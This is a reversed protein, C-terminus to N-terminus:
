SRDEWETVGIEDLNFVLEACANHVNNRFADIAAELFVLPVKLRPYEQPISKTEFLEHTHGTIFSDIRTRTMSKGFRESYGHLLETRNVARHNAAKNALWEVLKQECEASLERPRGRALPDDYSRLEARAVVTHSVEFARAVARASLEIRLQTSAFEFLCVIQHARYRANMFQGDLVLDVAQGESLCYRVINSLLPSSDIALVPSLADQM